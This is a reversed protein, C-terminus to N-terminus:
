ILSIKSNKFMDKKHEINTLDWSPLKQNFNKADLFM